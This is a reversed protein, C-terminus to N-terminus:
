HSNFSHRYSMEDSYTADSSRSLAIQEAISCSFVGCSDNSCTEHRFAASTGAVSFIDVKHLIYSHIGKFETDSETM